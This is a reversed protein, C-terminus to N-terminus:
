AIPSNIKRTFRNGGGLTPDTGQDGRRLNRDQAQEATTGVPPVVGLERVLELTDGQAFIEITRGDGVVFVDVDSATFSEGSWRRTPRPVTLANSDTM